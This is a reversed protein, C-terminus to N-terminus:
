ALGGAAKIALIRYQNRESTMAHLQAQLEAIRADKVTLSAEMM